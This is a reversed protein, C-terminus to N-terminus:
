SYNTRVRIFRNIENLNHESQFHIITGSVTIDQVMLLCIFTVGRGNGCYGLTGWKCFVTNLLCQSYKLIDLLGIKVLDILKCM